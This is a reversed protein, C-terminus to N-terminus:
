VSQLFYFFFLPSWGGVVGLPAVTTVVFVFLCFLKNPCFGSLIVLLARSNSNFNAHWLILPRLDFLWFSKCRNFQAFSFSISIKPTVSVFKDSLSPRYM